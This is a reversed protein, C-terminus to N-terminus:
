ETVQPPADPTHRAWSTTQVDFGWGDEVRIGQVLAAEALIEDLAAQTNKNLERIALQALKSIPIREVPKEIM